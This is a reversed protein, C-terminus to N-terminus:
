GKAEDVFEPHKNAIHREVNAFTRTCCPCVGHAIRRKTKTLQGKTAAHSRRAAQLDRERGQLQRRLREAAEEAQRAKDEARQADTKGTFAQGHGAPCYFTRHDDLRAKRFERTMAWPMGCVCCHEVDYVTSINLTASAM